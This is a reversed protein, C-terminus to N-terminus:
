ETVPEKEEAKAAEVNEKKLRDIEANLSAIEKAAEDKLIALRRLEKKLLKMTSMITSVADTAEELVDELRPSAMQPQKNAVQNQM